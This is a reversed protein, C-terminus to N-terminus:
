GAPLLQSNLNIELIELLRPIKKEQNFKLSSSSKEIATILSRLDGGASILPVKKEEAKQAAAPIPVGNNSIVICKVSTQLAASQLGALAAKRFGPREGWLIVAKNNKRNYYAPGRDFTSSGMMLNEIIEGASEPSNLIKGQVAEALDNVSMSMLIRDEPIVGLLAMGRKELDPLYANQIQKLNKRPVKNIVIGLLRAGIKEYEAMSESFSTDYDHIVLVRAELAELLSSSKNIPLGEILVIDKDATIQAYAQKIATISDKQNGAAPGILEAPEKLDLLKQVFLIDKDGGPTQVSSDSFLPKLYGVKKNKDTWYKGLGACFLTKGANESLSTIYLSLM